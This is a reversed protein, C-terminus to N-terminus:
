NTVIKRIVNHWLICIGDGDEVMHRAEWHGLAHGEPALMDPTKAESEHERNEYFKLMHIHRTRPQADHEALERATDKSGVM